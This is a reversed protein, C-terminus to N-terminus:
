KRLADKFVLLNPFNLTQWKLDCINCEDKVYKIVSAFESMTSMIDEIKKTLYTLQAKINDAESFRSIGDRDIITIKLQDRDIANETKRKYSNETLWDLYDM